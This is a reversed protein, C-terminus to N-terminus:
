AQPVLGKAAAFRALEATTYLDLERMLRTKHYEVTKVSLGLHAAIQKLGNGEAVLRLVQRQRMTLRDVPEQKPTVAADVLASAVAPSVYHQGRLAARLAFALEDPEASKLLYGQVGAAFAQRVRVPDSQATLMVIPVMSIERLRRTADIGDFHSLQLELLFLDPANEQAARLLTPSDSVIDMTEFEPELLKRLGAAVLTQDEAIM